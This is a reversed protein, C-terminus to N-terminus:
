MRWLRWLRVTPRKMLVSNPYSKTVAAAFALSWVWMGTHNHALSGSFVERNGNTNAKLRRAACSPSFFLYPSLHVKNRDTRKMSVGPLLWLPASAATLCTPVRETTEQRVAESMFTDANGGRCGKVCVLLVLFLSNHVTEGEHTKDPWSGFASSVDPAFLASM